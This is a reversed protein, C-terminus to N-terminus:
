FLQRGCCLLYLCVGLSWMDFSPQAPLLGQPAPLWGQLEGSYKHAFLEPPCHSNTKGFDKSNFVGGIETATCLDILKWRDGSLVMNLPKVGGHVIGKSHMHGLAQAIEHTIKRIAGWDRAAFDHYLIATALTSRGLDMVLCYRLDELLEYRRQAERFGGNDTSSEKCEHEQLLPMVFDKELRFRERLSREREFRSKNRMLKLAVHRPPASPCSHDTARLVACSESKYLPTCENPPLKYRGLFFCADEMVRRCALSAMSYATAGRGDELDCLSPDATVVALVWEEVPQGEGQVMHHFITEGHHGHGGVVGSMPLSAGEVMNDESLFAHLTAVWSSNAAAEGSDRSLINLAMAVPSIELLASEFSGQPYASVLDTVVELPARAKAALHLPLRLQWDAEAAAEPKAFLLANIVERPANAEAALHLALRGKADCEFAGEPYGRLLAEMVGLSAKHRAARHLPLSGLGDASSCGPPYAAILAEIVELSADTSACAVHLPLSGLNEDAESAAEKNVRLLAEITKLSAAAAAAFHIPLWGITGDAVSTGAPYIELLAEIVELPASADYLALHLPLYGEEKICVMAPFSKIIDMIDGWEIGGRRLMGVLSVDAENEM